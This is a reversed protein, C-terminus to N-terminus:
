VSMEDCFRFLVLVLYFDHDVTGTCDGGLHGVAKGVAKTSGVLCEKTRFFFGTYFLGKLCVRLYFTKEM